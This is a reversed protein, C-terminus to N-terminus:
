TAAALAEILDGLEGAKLADLAPAPQTKGREWGTWTVLLDAALANDAALGDLVLDLGAIKLDALTRGPLEDDDVWAKWAERLKAPDPGPRVFDNM